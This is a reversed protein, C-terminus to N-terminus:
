RVLGIRRGILEGPSLWLHRNAVSFLGELFDFAAADHILHHSLVGVPYRGHDLSHSLTAAVAGALLGHDRCKRTGRFDILDIHTNIEPISGPVPAASTLGFTSFAAYGIASLCEVLECAIRNWPPVLIPVLRTGYLAKMKHLGRTLEDRMESLPRHPGFEQKKEGEAAHNRHAWGHVIPAVHLQNELTAALAKGTAAPIIALAIPVKFRAALITLRDLAPSPEVADDDRLWLPARLGAASWRDLAEVVPEWIRAETM